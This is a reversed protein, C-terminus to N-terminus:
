GSWKLHTRTMSVHYANKIQTERAYTKIKIITQLIPKGLSLFFLFFNAGFDTVLM